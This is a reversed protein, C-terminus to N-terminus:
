PDLVPTHHWECEIELRALRVAETLALLAESMRM